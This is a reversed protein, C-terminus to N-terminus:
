RTEAKEKLRQLQQHAITRMLSEFPSQGREIELRPRGVRAILRAWAPDASLHRMAAASM